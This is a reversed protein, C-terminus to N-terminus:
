SVGESQASLMFMVSSLLKRGIRRGCETEKNCTTGNGYGCCEQQSVSYCEIGDCCALGEIGGCVV